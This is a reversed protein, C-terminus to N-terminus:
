QKLSKMYESPTQGTSNRFAKNFSSKSKFGSALALGLISYHAFNTDQMKRKVEDIRYGNIFDFFNQEFQKNITQSLHNRSIGINEALSILTLNESLYPQEATMYDKITQAMKKEGVEDLGSKNYDTSPKPQLPKNQQITSFITTNKLGNYGIFFIYITMFLSVFQFVWNTQFWSTSLGVYVSLYVLLFFVVAAIAWRKLWDLKIGEEFSYNSKLNRQYKRLLVFSALPYLAGSLALPNGYARLWVPFTGQFQLFGNIVDIHTKDSSHYLLLIGNYIIYPIFHLWGYKLINSRGILSACYLFFLPSHVLALSFGLIHLVEFGSALQNFTALYFLLHLGMVVLWSMLLKNHQQKKGSILLVLFIAQVIGVSTIISVFM